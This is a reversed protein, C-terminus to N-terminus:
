RLVNRQMRAKIRSRYNETLADALERGEYGLYKLYSVVFGRYYVPAPLKDFDDEEIAALQDLPVRIRQCVEREDIGATLRLERLFSGGLNEKTVSQFLMRIRDQIQPATAKPAVVSVVLRNQGGIVSRITRPQTPAEGLPIPGQSGLPRRQGLPVHTRTIAGNPILREEPMLPAAHSQRYPATEPPSLSELSRQAAQLAEELEPIGSAELAELPEKPRVFRVVNGQEAFALLSEESLGPLLSAPLASSDEEADFGDRHAGKAEMPTEGKYAFELTPKNQLAM